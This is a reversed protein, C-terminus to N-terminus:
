IGRRKFILNNVKFTMQKVLFMNHKKLSVTIFILYFYRKILLFITAVYNFFTSYCTYLFGLKICLKNKTYKTLRQMNRAYRPGDDLPVVTHIFCNTSVTRKVHNDPTRTPNSDFCPLLCEHLFFLLYRGTTKYM